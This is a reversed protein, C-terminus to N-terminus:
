KTLYTGTAVHVWKGSETREFVIEKTEHKVTTFLAEIYCFECDVTARNDKQDIKNITVYCSMGAEDRALAAIFGDVDNICLNESTVYNEEAYSSPLYALSFVVILVIFVKISKM